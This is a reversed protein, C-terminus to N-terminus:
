SGDVLRTVLISAHSELRPKTPMLQWMEFAIPHGNNQDMSFVDPFLDGLECLAKFATRAARSGPRSCPSVDENTGPDWTAVQLGSRIRDVVGRVIPRGRNRPGTKNTVKGSRFEFQASRSSAMGEVFTAM